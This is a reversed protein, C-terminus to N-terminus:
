HTHVFDMSIEVSDWMDTVPAIQTHATKMVSKIACLVIRKMMANERTYMTISRKLEGRSRLLRVWGGKM